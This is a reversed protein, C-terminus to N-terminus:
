LYLFDKHWRRLFFLGVVLCTLGIAFVYAPSAYSAHYSSFTAQRLTGVIHILPNYWLISRYPEPVAEFIYFISSIIFMPKHAINWLRQWSPLVSIMLCNLIGIGAGLVATMAIALAILELDLSVQPDYIWLVGTFILCFVLVQTLFTLVFRGILADMFTIVPYQLLPKSYWIAVMLKVYVQTYMTFPLIGTAYFIAFNDGLPPADFALSFLFTLLAIGALPELIAWLYGGATRGYSSSIERLILAGISRTSQAIWHPQVSFDAAM